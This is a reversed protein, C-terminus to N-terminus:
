HPPGLRHFLAELEVLRECDEGPEDVLLALVAVDHPTLRAGPKGARAAAAVPRLITTFTELRAALRAREREGARRGCRMGALCALYAAAAVVPAVAVFWRLGEEVLDSGSM